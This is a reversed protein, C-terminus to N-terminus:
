VRLEGYAGPFDPMVASNVAQATGLPGPFVENNAHGMAFSVPSLQLRRKLERNEEVFQALLTEMRHLKYEDDPVLERPDNRAPGARQEEVCAQSAVSSPSTVGRGKGSPEGLEKQPVDALETDIAEAAGGASPEVRAVRPTESSGLATYDPERTGLVPVLDRLATEDM